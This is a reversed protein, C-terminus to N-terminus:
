DGQQRAELRDGRDVATVGTIELVAADVLLGDLSLRKASTVYEDVADAVAYGAQDGRGAVRIGAVGGDPVRDVEVFDVGRSNVAAVDDLRDDQRRGVALRVLGGDM